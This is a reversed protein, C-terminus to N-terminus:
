MWCSEKDDCPMNLQKFEDKLPQLNKFDYIQELRWDLQLKVETMTLTEQHIHIHIHRHRNSAKIISKGPDTAAFAM